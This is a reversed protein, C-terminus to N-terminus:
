VTEVGIGSEESSIDQDNGDTEFYNCGVCFMGIKKWKQNKFTGQHIYSAVLYHENCVPCVLKTTKGRGQKPNDAVKTTGM